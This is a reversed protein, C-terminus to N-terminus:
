EGCRATASSSSSHTSARSWRRTSSAESCADYSIASWGLPDRVLGGEGRLEDFTGHPDALFAPTSPDLPVNPPYTSRM